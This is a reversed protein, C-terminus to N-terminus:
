HDPCGAEEMTAPPSHALKRSPQRSTCPLALEEPPFREPHGTVALSKSSERKVETEVKV